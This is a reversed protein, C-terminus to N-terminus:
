TNTNAGIHWFASQPDSRHLDDRWAGPPPREVKNFLLLMDAEVAPYGAVNTRKAAPWVRLYWAIARDPDLSNLGVHHLQPMSPRSGAQARIERGRAAMVFGFVLLLLHARLMARTDRM